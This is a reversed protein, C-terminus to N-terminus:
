GKVIATPILLVNAREMKVNGTGILAAGVKVEVLAVDIFISPVEVCVTLEKVPSTEVGVLWIIFIFVEVPNPASPVAQRTYPEFPVYLASLNSASNHNHKVNVCGVGKCTVNVAGCM